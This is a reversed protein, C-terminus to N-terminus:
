IGRKYFSVIVLNNWTNINDYKCEKANEMQTKWRRKGDKKIVKLNMNFDFETYGIKGCEITVGHKKAVLKLAEEVDIRFNEFGKRNFEM